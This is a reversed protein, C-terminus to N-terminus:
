WTADYTHGGGISIHVHLSCQDDAWDSGSGVALTCTISGDGGSVSIDGTLTASATSPKDVDMSYALTIDFRPNRNYKHFFFKWSTSRNFDFEVEGALIGTSADYDLEFVETISGHKYDYEMELVELTGCNMAIKGTFSLSTKEAMDMLGSADESFSACAGAGFPVTMDVDFDFEEVDFGGGVWDWDTLSVSGDMILGTESADLDYSSDFNGMPTVMDGVFTISDDAETILVSLEMEKFDFGGITIDTIGIDETFEPGDDGDTIAIDFDVTGDGLEGEFSLSAGKGLTYPGVQCGRPAFDISFDNAKFVGEGISIGSGGSDSSGSSDSEFDFLFCPDSESINVAMDGKIWDSGYMVLPMATPDQYVTASVGLGPLDNVFDVQASIAWLHLGPVDFANDWLYVWGSEPHPLPTTIGDPPPTGDSISISDIDLSPGGASATAQVRLSTLATSGVTYPVTIETWEDSVSFVQSQATGGAPGLSILGQALETSSSSRVQATVIWTTGAAYTGGIDSSAAMDLYTSQNATASSQLVLYGSGSQASAGDYVVSQIAGSVPTWPNTQLAVQDLYLTQGTTSLTVTVTFGTHGSQAITIPISVMQWVSTAIFTQSFVEQTGGTSTVQFTGEVPRGATKVFATASLQDGVSTSQTVAHQVGSDSTNTSFEMVGYSSDYANPPDDMVNWTVGPGTASWPDSQEIIVPTLTLEDVDLQGASNLIIQPILANANASAQFTLQVPTWSPGATFTVAQRGNVQGNSATSLSMTGSLSAGTTSRVYAELNYSSGAIVDIPNGDTDTAVTDGMGGAANPTAFRLYNAGNAAQGSNDVIVVSAKGSAPQVASWYNVDRSEVDDVYLTVGAPVTIESRITVANTNTIPLSMFFYGWDPTATFPVQYTDLQKGNVDFTRLALAGAAPSAGTPVRLWASFEHATGSTPRYTDDLYVPQSTASTNDILLYGDGDYATTSDDIGQVAIFGTTESAQWDDVPTLNVETISLDDVLVPNSGTSDKYSIAVSFSTAATAVPLTVVANTYTGLTPSLTVPVTVTNSGASFTVTVPQKNAATRPALWLSAQWTSGAIPASAPTVSYTDVQTGGAGPQLMLSGEGSHALSADSVIVPSTSQYVAIASSASSWSSSAGVVDVSKVQFSYSGASLGFVACSYTAVGSSVIPSATVSVSCVNAGATTKAQFSSVASTQAAPISWSLTVTTGSTSATVSSPTPLGSTARERVVSTPAASTPLVNTISTWGDPSGPIGIGVENSNVKTGTVVVDDVYLLENAQNSNIDVAVYLDSTGGQLTRTVTVQQWTGNATFSKTSTGAQEYIRLRGSVGTPALVWASYTLVEGAAGPTDWMYLVTGGSSTLAQVAMSNLGSYAEDSTVQEIVTGTNSLYPVWPVQQLVQDDVLLNANVTTMTIRPRLDTHGSQSVELTVSVQTWSTGVSFSTSASETTGGIGYLSLSGSVSGSASKLWATYTFYQGPTPTEGTSYEFPQNSWSSTTLSGVGVGSRAQGNGILVQNPAKVGTQQGAAPQVSYIQFDDWRIGPTSAVPEPVQGFVGGPVTPMALTQTFYLEGTSLDTVYATVNSGVATLRVQYWTNRAVDPVKTMGAVTSKTSKSCTMFGGDQRSGSDVQLRFCYGSMTSYNGDLWFGFDAIERTNQSSTSSQPFYVKYSVDFNGTTYGATKSYLMWSQEGNSQLTGPIDTAISVGSSYGSMLPTAPLSDFTAVVNPRWVSSVSNGGSASTVSFEVADIQVSTGSTTPVLTVTVSQCSNGLTGSATAEVWTGSAATVTPSSFSAASTCGNSTVSILFPAAGTTASTVWASVSVGYHDLPLPITQTLGQNSNNSASNNSLVAVTSGSDSPGTATGATTSATFSGSSTTWGLLSGGNDEFDGNLLFNTDEFDGNELINTYTGDEFDPNPLANIGTSDDFSGNVVIDGPDISREFGGDNAINAPLKGDFSGDVISDNEPEFDGSPVLNVFDMTGQPQTSQTGTASLGVTITQDTSKQYGIYVDLPFHTGDIVVDCEADLELDFETLGDDRQRSMSIIIEDLTFGSGSLGVPITGEIDFNGALDFWGTADITATVDTGAGLDHMVNGPVVIDATVYNRDPEAEIETGDVFVTETESLGNWVYGVLTTSTVTVGNHDSSSVDGGTNVQALISGEDTWAACGFMSETTVYPIPVIFDACLEVNMGNGNQSSLDPLVIESNPGTGTGSWITLEPDSISIGNFSASGQLSGDWWGWSLDALFAGTAVGSPFSADDFTVTSDGGIFIGDNQTDDSPPCNVVDSGTLPCSNSITFTGELQIGKAMDQWTQMAITMDWTQVGQVETVTGSFDTEPVELGDFPNYLNSPTTGAATATWNQADIYDYTVPLAFTDGDEDSFEITTTGSGTVSPVTVDSSRTQQRTTMAPAGKGITSHHQSGPGSFVVMGGVFAAGGKLPIRGGEVEHKYAALAWVPLTGDTWSSRNYYGRVPVRTGSIEKHGRAILKVSGNAEVPGTFSIAGLGSRLVHTLSADFTWGKGTTPRLSYDSTATWAGPFDLLLEGRTRVTLAGSIGRSTIRLTTDVGSFPRSGPLGLFTGTASRSTLSYSDPADFGVTVLYDLTGISTQGPATLAWQPRGARMGLSGTMQATDVVVRNTGPIAWTPRTTGQVRARWSDAGSIELDASATLLPEELTLRARGQLTRTASSLVVSVQELRAGPTTVARSTAGTLRWTTSASRGPATAMLFGAVPVETRSISVSGTGRLTYSGDGRLPGRLDVSAGNGQADLAVVASWDCGTPHATITVDQDWTRSIREHNPLDITISGTMRGSRWALQGAVDRDRVVNQGIRGSAGVVTLYKTAGQVRVRALLRTGGPGDFRVLGAPVSDPCLGGRLVVARDSSRPTRNEQDALGSAAAPVAASDVAQSSAAATPVVGVLLGAAIALSSGAALALPRRKM